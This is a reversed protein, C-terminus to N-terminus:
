AILTVNRAVTHAVARDLTEVFLTLTYAGIAAADLAAPLAGQWRLTPTSPFGEIAFDTAPPVMEAGPRGAPPGSPDLRVRYQIGNVAHYDTDRVWPGTAPPDQKAWRSPARVRITTSAKSLTAGAAPEVLEALLRHVVRPTSNADSPAGGAFGARTIAKVAVPDDDDERDAASLTIVHSGFDQPMPWVLAADGHAANLEPQADTAAANLTSYWKFFLGATGGADVQGRLQVAATSVFAAGHAPAVISLAVISM